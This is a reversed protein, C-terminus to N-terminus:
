ELEVEAGDICFDIAVDLLHDLIPDPPVLAGVVVFEDLLHKVFAGSHFLFLDDFEQGVIHLEDSLVLDHVFLTQM